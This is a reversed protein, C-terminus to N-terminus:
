KGIESDQNNEDIYHYDIDSNFIGQDNLVCKEITGNPNERLQNVQTEIARGRLATPEDTTIASRIM